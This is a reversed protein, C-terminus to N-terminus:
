EVVSIEVNDHLGKLLMQGNFKILGQRKASKLTGVLAEYTNQVVEDDFLDGFKVRPEGSGVRRIDLLLKHVEDQVQSAVGLSLIKSPSKFGNAITAESQIRRPAKGVVKSSLATNASEKELQRMPEPSIMAQESWRKLM